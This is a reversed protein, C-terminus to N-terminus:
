KESLEILKKATRIIRIKGSRGANKYFWEISELMTYRGYPLTALKERNKEVWAWNASITEGQKKRIAEAKLEDVKKKLGADGTKAVCDSGVVFTRGDSSQVQCCIAIGTGCYECTGMPQGPAGVTYGDGMVKPGRDEYWGVFAFPAKGLGAAEFVHVKESM